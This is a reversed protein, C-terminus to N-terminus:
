AWAKFHNFAYVPFGEPAHRLFDFAFDSQVETREVRNVEPMQDDGVVHRMVGIQVFHPQHDRRVVRVFARTFEHALRVSQLHNVEGDRLVLLQFATVDFEIQGLRIESRRRHPVQPGLVGVHLEADDDSLVIKNSEM